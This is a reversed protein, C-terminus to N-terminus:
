EQEYYGKIGIGITWFYKGEDSESIEEKQEDQKPIVQRWVALDISPFVYSYPIEDDENDFESSTSNSIKQILEFAPTKFVEIDKLFVETFESDKGTFEIFNAKNNDDFSIQLENKFYGDKAPISISFDGYDMIMQKSTHEPTGLIQQIEDRSMGFKLDGAGIHPEIKFKM